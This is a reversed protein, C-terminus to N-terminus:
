KRKGDFHYALTGGLKRGAVEMAFSMDLDFVLRSQDVSATGSLVTAAASADEGNQEFCKQGKAITAGTDSLTGNLTCIEKGNSSDVLEFALATDSSTTVKLRAKPDKETRDPLSEIHYTAVDEGLYDGVFASAVPKTKPDAAHAGEASPAKQGESASKTAALEKTPSTGSDAETKARPSNGAHAVKDKNHRPAHSEEGRMGPSLPGWGLPKTSPQPACGFATLLFAASLGCRRRWIVHKCGDLGITM